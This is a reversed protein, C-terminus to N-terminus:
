PLPHPSTRHPPVVGVPVDLTTAPRFDVEEGRKVKVPERLNDHTTRPLCLLASISLRQTKCRDTPPHPGPLARAGKM